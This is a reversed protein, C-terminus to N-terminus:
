GLDRNFLKIKAWAPEIVSNELALRIPDNAIFLRSLAPRAPRRFRYQRNIVQRRRSAFSKFYVGLRQTFLQAFSETGRSEEM